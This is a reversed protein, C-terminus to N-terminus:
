YKSKYASKNLHEWHKKKETPLKIGSVTPMAKIVLLTEPTYMGTAKSPPPLVDIDFVDLAMQTIPRAMAVKRTNM